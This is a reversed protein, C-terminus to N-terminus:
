YVTEQYELLRGDDSFDLRIIWPWVRKVARAREWGFDPDYSNLLACIATCHTCVAVCGGREREVIDEVSERMRQQVQRLSEGHPLCYDHDQWQRQTHVANEEKPCGLIGERLRPDAQIPLGSCRSYGSITEMTRRCDSSYIATIGKDGLYGTVEAIQERGRATLPQRLDDEVSRDPENHRILYIRTM